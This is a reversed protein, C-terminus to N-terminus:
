EGKKLLYMICQASEMTPAVRNVLDDVDVIGQEAEKKMKEYEQLKQNLQNEQDTMRFQVRKSLEKQIYEVYKMLKTAFERNADDLIKTVSRDLMEKKQQGPNMKLVKVFEPDNKSLHEKVYQMVTGDLEKKAKNQEIKIVETIDPFMTKTEQIMNYFLSDVKQMCAIEADSVNDQIDIRLEALVADVDVHDEIRSDDYKNFSFFDMVNDVTEKVKEIARDVKESVYAIVSAAFDVFIGM